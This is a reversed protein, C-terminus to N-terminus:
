HSFNFIATFYLVAYATYTLLKFFIYAQTKQM